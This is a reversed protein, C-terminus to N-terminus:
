LQLQGLSPRPTNPHNQGDKGEALLLLQGQLAPGLVAVQPLEPLHFVTEPTEGPQTGGDLLGMASQLSITVQPDIFAKLDISEVRNHICCKHATYM